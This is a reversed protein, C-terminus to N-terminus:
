IQEEEQYLHLPYDEYEVNGTGAPGGGRRTAGAWWAEVLGDVLDVKRAAGEGRRTARAWWAEVMGEMLNWPAPLREESDIRRTAVRNFMSRIFNKSREAEERERDRNARLSSM